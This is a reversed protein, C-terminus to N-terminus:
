EKERLIWIVLRMKLWAYVTLTNGEITYNFYKYGVM